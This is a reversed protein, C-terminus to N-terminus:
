VVGLIGGRLDVDEIVGASGSSVDSKDGTAGVESLGM